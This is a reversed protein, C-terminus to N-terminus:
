TDIKGDDQRSKMDGFHAKLSDVFVYVVDLMSTLMYVLAHVCSLDLM